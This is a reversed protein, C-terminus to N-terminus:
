AQWDEVPLGQVRRFEANHTVLTLGNALAIAAILLDNPGIVNGSQELEHRIRAYHVAAADDFPLSLYPGFLEALVALRRARNGYKEVGHLLEAKVVSCLLVAAPSLQQLRARVPSDPRKLYVIWANTDPLYAMVM